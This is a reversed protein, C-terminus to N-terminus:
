SESKLLYKNILVLISSWAASTADMLSYHDAEPIEVFTFNGLTGPLESTIQGGAQPQPAQELEPRPQQAHRQQAHRQQQQQGQPRQEIQRAVARRLSNAVQLPVDTDQEGSCIVIPLPLNAMEAARRTPCARKYAEPVESPRGGVYRQVADGEDSLRLSVALELDAVPAVGIVVAPRLEPELELATWLALQGGASFGLLAASQTQLGFAGRLTRSVFRMAELVDENPHPFPFADGRRYEIEVAAFGRTVLDPAITECATGAATAIGYKAKWFGGHLIYVVPVPTLQPTLQPTGPAHAVPPRWIRVFQSPNPGYLYDSYTM